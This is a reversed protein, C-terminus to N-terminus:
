HGPQGWLHVVRGRGEPLRCLQDREACIVFPMCQAILAHPCCNGVRLSHQHLPHWVEYFMCTLLLGFRLGSQRLYDEACLRVRVLAYPCSRMSMGTLTTLMSQCIFATTLGYVQPHEHVPVPCVLASYWM